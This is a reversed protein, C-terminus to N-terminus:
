REIRRLPRNSRARPFGSDMHNPAHHANQQGGEGNLENEVTHGAVVM